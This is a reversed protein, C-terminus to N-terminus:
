RAPSAATSWRPMTTIPATPSSRPPMPRASRRAAAQQATGSLVYLTLDPDVSLAAEYCARAMDADEACMNALAGHLKVHRVSAGQAAAMGRIAGVQYRIANQLDARAM